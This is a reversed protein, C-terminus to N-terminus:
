LEEAAFRRIEADQSQTSLNPLHMIPGCSRHPIQGVKEKAFRGIRIAVIQAITIMAQVVSAAHPPVAIVVFRGAFVAITLM